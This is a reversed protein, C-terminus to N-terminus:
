LDRGEMGKRSDGIPSMDQEMGHNEGVSAVQAIGERRWGERGEGGREGARRSVQSRERRGIM